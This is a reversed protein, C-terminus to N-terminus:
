KLIKEIKRQLIIAMRNFGLDTFHVGDVTAEMDNGILNKGELYYINKNGAKKLKDFENRLVINKENIINKTTYDFFAHPFFVTEIFLIPTEPNEKRLISVFNATREMIQDSTVNPIFDLIFLSADHRKAMLEAIEYDLKGNGSFGLNIIEMNLKRSLINTYSMGPRSACGGQTISTGYVIIPNNTRIINLKPQDIYAASDVGISLTVLGDYLPLFLLYEREIPNMNQIIIKDNLKGSPRGSNVFQWHDSQWAYLDLGKIGTDTMHNMQINSLVEWKASISTSNSRFLVALGSSNKGLNWVPSRCIDKLDAPLREYRTETLNSIKGILPFQAADYYIIQSYISTTYSLAIFFLIYYKM